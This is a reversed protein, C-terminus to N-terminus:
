HNIYHIASNKLFKCYERSSQLSPLSHSYRRNLLNKYNGGNEPLSVQPQMTPRSLSRDAVSIQKNAKKRQIMFFFLANTHLLKPMIACVM